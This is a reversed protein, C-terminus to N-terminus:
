TIYMSDVRDHRKLFEIQADISSFESLDLEKSTREKNQNEGFWTKDRSFQSIFLYTNDRM